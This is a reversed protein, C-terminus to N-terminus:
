DETLTPEQASASALDDLFALSGHLDLRNEYLVKGMVVGVLGSRECDFLKELDNPTQPDNLSLVPIRVHNCFEKINGLDSDLYCLAAVGAEEFRDAYDLATKHVPAVMGPIVVHKNRVEIPAVIKKEFHKAAKELLDPHQYALSGVVIKDVGVEAYGEIAAISQFNGAVWLQLGLNKQLAEIIATNESKGTAPINLDNIYLAKAGQEALIKALELLEERFWAPNTGVPKQAKGNKLYILPILLM